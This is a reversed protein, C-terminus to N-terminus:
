ELIPRGDRDIWCHAEFRGEVLRAGFCLSVDVGARRLLWYRTIGRTLCGPRVLPRARRIVADVVRAIRDIALEADHAELAPRRRTPKSYARREMAEGGPITPSDQGGSPTRTWFPDGDVGGLRRYPLSRSLGTM